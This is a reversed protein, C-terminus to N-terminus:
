KRRAPSNFLEAEDAYHHAGIVAVLVNALACEVPGEVLLDLSKPNTSCQIAADPGDLSHV